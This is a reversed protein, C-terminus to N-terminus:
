RLLAWSTVVAASMAAIAVAGSRVPHPSRPPRANSTPPEADDDQVNELAERLETASDFREKASFALAREVLTEFRLAAADLRGTRLRPTPEHLKARLLELGHRDGYPHAGAVARYLVAGLAYVDVSATVTHSSLIQEPAMYEFTGVVRDAITIEEEGSDEAFRGVGLDVLVARRTGDPLKHLVINGPKVDRHVVGRAHMAELGRAVDMAVELALEVSLREHRLVEGLTPGDLLEMVIIAGHRSRPVYDVVRVVHESEVRALLLAERAFRMVM